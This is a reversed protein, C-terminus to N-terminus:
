KNFPAVAFIQFSIQPLRKFKYPLTYVVTDINLQRKAYYAFVAQSFICFQGFDKAFFKAFNILNDNHQKCFHCFKTLLMHFVPIKQSM